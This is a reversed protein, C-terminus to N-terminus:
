ELEELDLELEAFEDIVVGPKAPPPLPQRVVVQEPVSWVGVLGSLLGGFLIPVVLIVLLIGILCSGCGLDGSPLGTLWCFGFFTECTVDVDDEEFSESADSFALYAGGVMLLGITGLVVGLTVLTSKAM